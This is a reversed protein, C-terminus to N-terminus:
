MGSADKIIKVRNSASSPPITELNSEIANLRKKQNNLELEIRLLGICYLLIGLASITTAFFSLTTKSEDNGHSNRQTEPHSKFSFASRKAGGMMSIMFVQFSASIAGTGLCLGIWCTLLCRPGM